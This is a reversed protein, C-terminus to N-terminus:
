LTVLDKVVHSNKPELVLRDSEARCTCALTVAGNVKVACRGCVGQNCVSHRYYSLTGDLRERIYDLVDMVTYGDEPTYPVDYRDYRREGTEPTYRLIKVEM